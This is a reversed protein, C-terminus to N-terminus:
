VVFIRMSQFGSYIFLYIRGLLNFSGNPAYKLLVMAKTM